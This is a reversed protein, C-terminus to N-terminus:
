TGYNLISCHNWGLVAFDPGSPSKTSRKFNSCTCVLAMGNLHYKGWRLKPGGFFDRNVQLCFPMFWWETNLNIVILAFLHVDIATNSKAGPNRSFFCFLDKQFESKSNSFRYVCSVGLYAFNPIIGKEFSEKPLVCKPHKNRKRNFSAISCDRSNVLPIQIAGVHIKMIKHTHWTQYM